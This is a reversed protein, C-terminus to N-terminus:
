VKEFKCVFEKIKRCCCFNRQKIVKNSKIMTTVTRFSTFIERKEAKSIKLRGRQIQKNRVDNEDRSARFKPNIKLTKWFHIPHRHVSRDNKSKRFHVVRCNSTRTATSSREWVRLSGSDLSFEEFAISKRNWFGFLNMSCVFFIRSWRSQQKKEREKESDDLWHGWFSNWAMHQSESGWFDKFITDTTPDFPAFSDFKLSM